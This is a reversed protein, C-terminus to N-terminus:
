GMKSHIEEMLVQRAGKRNFNILKSLNRVDTTGKTKMREFTEMM